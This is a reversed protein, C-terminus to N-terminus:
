FDSKRFPFCSNAFRTYERRSITVRDILSGPTEFRKGRMWCEAGVHAVGGDIGLLNLVDGVEGTDVECVVLDFPESLLKGVNEVREFREVIDGLRFSLGFKRVHHAGVLCSLAERM